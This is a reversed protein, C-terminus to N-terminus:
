EMEGGWVEGDIEEGLDAALDEFLGFDKAGLVYNGDRAM